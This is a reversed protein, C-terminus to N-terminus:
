MRSSHSLCCMQLDRPLESPVFAASFGELHLSPWCVAVLHREVIGRSFAEEAAVACSLACVRMM